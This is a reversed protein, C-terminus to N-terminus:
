AAQKMIQRAFLSAEDSRRLTLGNVERLERQIKGNADLIPIEKGEANLIPNDNEDRQVITLWAKNHRQFKAGAKVYKEEKLAKLVPSIKFNGEGINFVLSVLANFMPTTIPTNGLQKSIFRAKAQADLKLIAIGQELTLEMDEPIVKPEFEGGEVHGFGIAWAWGDEDNKIDKYRRPMFDEWRVIIGIGDDTIIREFSHGNGFFKENFPM